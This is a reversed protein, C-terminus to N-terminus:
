VGDVEGELDRGLSHRSSEFAHAGHTQSTEVDGDRVLGGDHGQHVVDVLRRPAGL